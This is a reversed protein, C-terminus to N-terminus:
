SCKIRVFNYLVRSGFRMCLSLPSLTAILRPLFGYLVVEGSYVLANDKGSMRLFYVLNVTAGIIVLILDVVRYYNHGALDLSLGCRLLLYEVNVNWAVYIFVLHFGCFTLLLLHM